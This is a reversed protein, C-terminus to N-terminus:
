PEFTAHLAAILEPALDPSFTVPGDPAHRWRLACFGGPENRLVGVALRGEDPLGGGGDVMIELVLVAGVIEDPWAIKGLAEAVTDGPLEGQEVPTLGAADESGLAGVLAPEHALLEATPVLAFLQRPQNWGGDGVFCEVEAVVEALTSARSEGPGTPQPVPETAPETQPESVEHHHWSVPGASRQAM